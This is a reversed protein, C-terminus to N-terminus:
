GPEGLCRGVLSAEDEAACCLRAAFRARALAPLLSRRRLVQLRTLHIKILAEYTMIPIMQRVMKTGNTGDEYWTGKYWPVRYKTSLATTSPVLTSPALYRPVLYTTGLQQQQQLEETALARRGFFTVECALGSGSGNDSCSHCQLRTHM